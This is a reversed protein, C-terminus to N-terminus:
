AEVARDVFLQRRGRRHLNGFGDATFARFPFREYAGSPLARCGFIRNRWRVFRAEGIPFRAVFVM